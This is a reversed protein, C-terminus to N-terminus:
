FCHMTAEHTLYRTQSRTDFELATSFKINFIRYAKPLISLYRVLFETEIFRVSKALTDFACPVSACNEQKVVVSLLKTFGFRIIKRESCWVCCKRGSIQQQTNLTRTCFNTKPYKRERERECRRQQQQKKKHFNQSNSTFDLNATTTDPYFGFLLLIKDSNRKM